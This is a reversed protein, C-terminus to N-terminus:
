LFRSRFAMELLLGTVGTESYKLVNFAPAMELFREPNSPKVAFPVPLNLEHDTVLRQGSDIEFRQNLACPFYSDVYDGGVDGDTSWFGDANVQTGPEVQLDDIQITRGVTPASAAIVRLLGVVDAAPTFPLYIRQWQDRKAMDANLATFGTAPSVASAFSAISLQIQGGDWNTPILVWVSLTYSQSAVPLTIAYEDLTTSNGYTCLLSAVGSHAQLVTRAIASTGTASHGTTNSEFGSNTILNRVLRMRNNLLYMSEEPAMVILPAKAADLTKEINDIIIKHTTELAANEQAVTRDTLVLAYAELAFNAGGGRISFSNNLTVTSYAVTVTGTATQKAFTFWYTGADVEIYGLTAPVLVFGATAPIAAPTITAFTIYPVPTGANDIGFLVNVDNALAVTEAMRVLVGVIRTRETLVFKFGNNTNVTDLTLAGAFANLAGIVGAVRGNLRLRQIAQTPTYQQNVVAATYARRFLNTEVGSIDTALAHLLLNYDVTQDLEVAAASAAIPVPFDHVANNYAPKGAVALADEFQLAHGPAIGEAFLVTNNDTLTNGAAGARTGSEEDLPWYDVAAYYLNNDQWLLEETRRGKNDNFMWARQEATLVAKHFTVFDLRGNLFLSSANRAGLDFEGTNDFVGTSHAVSFIAGNDVQLNITDLVSDHWCAIFRWAGAGYGVASAVSNTLTGNSSVQFAFQGGANDFYLLFALNGAAGDKSILAMQAAATELYVWCTLTFDVNGAISLAANDARSLYESNASVFLAANKREYLRINNSTPGDDSFEPQWGASRRTGPPVLFSGAWVHKTNSSLALDILPKRDIAALYPFPPAATWDYLVNLYPHAVQYGYDGASHAAATTNLAGRQVVLFETASWVQVHLTESGVIIFEDDAWGATGDPNSVAFTSGAAPVSSSAFAAALTVRLTAPARINSWVKTTATDFNDLWRNIEAGALYVRLDQGTAQMKATTLTATDFLAQALDVPYGDGIPDSLEDIGRNALSVRRRYILSSAASMQATPKKIVRLPTKTNGLNTLGIYTDTAAVTQSSYSEIEAEWVGAAARMAVNIQNNGLHTVQLPRCLLRQGNSAEDEATLYREGLSPSPDFWQDILSFDAHTITGLIFVQLVFDRGLPQATVAVPFAGPEDAEIPDAGYSGALSQEFVFPTEYNVGDDIDHGDFQKFRM